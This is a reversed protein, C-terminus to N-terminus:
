RFSTFDGGSDWMAYNRITIQQNNMQEASMENLIYKFYTEIKRKSGVQM